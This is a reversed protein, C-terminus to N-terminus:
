IGRGGLHVFLVCTPHEGVFVLGLSPFAGSLGRWNTPLAGWEEAHMDSEPLNWGVGKFVGAMWVVLETSSLLESDMCHGERGYILSLYPHPHRDRWEKRKTNGTSARTEWTRLWVGYGRRQWLLCWVSKRSYRRFSINYSNWCRRLYTAFSTFFISQSQQLKWPVATILFSRYSKTCEIRRRWREHLSFRADMVMVHNGITEWECRRVTEISFKM